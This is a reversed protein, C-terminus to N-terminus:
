GVASAELFLVSGNWRWRILRVSSVADSSWTPQTGIWRISGSSIAWTMSRATINHQTFIINGSSPLSPVTFTVTTDGSGFLMSLSQHEGEDLVVTQTTGTPNNLTEVAQAVLRNVSLVGDSRIRLREIPAGTTTDTAFVLAANAVSAHECISAIWAKVGAGPASGDPSWFEVKGLVQGMEITGDSDYFQLTNNEAGGSNNGQIVLKKTPALVTGIGVNGDQGVVFRVTNVTTGTATTAVAFRTGAAADTFDEVATFVANGCIASFATAGYGTADIRALIDGSLAATPAALTGRAKRFVLQAGATSDSHRLIISAGTFVSYTGSGFEAWKDLVTPTARTYAGIAISRLSGSGSGQFSGLEYSGTAVARIRLGELASASTEFNMLEITQRATANVLKFVNATAADVQPMGLNARATSANALSSLNDTADLLLREVNGSDRYRLTDATRYVAGAAAGTTSTSVMVPGTLTGGALALADTIGYGGLTTPTSTITSWEQNHATPADGVYLVNGDNVAADLQAKTFSGLVAANGTSVVHGTLNANTTVTGANGTVSTQDGSNTGTLGLDTKLTALTQVEPAGTGATKRYFVSATVVDAQMAPTVVGPQITAASTVNSSGNFAPSAWVIHGSMSITRSTTLTAASGSTNQNLTPFDAAVAISPVGTSTTNRLIGTALGSLAVGNIRVVTLAASGTADGTHSANTTVDGVYLFNGDTVAVDFQSKTGTIGVISTQDGTNTNTSTGSFTGNQTSLTGLGSIDINSLTIAGTRGAVSTVPATPYLLQTWSALLTSDDASLVWMTGLDSRNCWDGRDGDLLLMAVQSAVSGLYETIAIAPIQATPITGGVLTAYTGVPQYAAAIQAATSVSLLTRVEAATKRGVVAVAGACVVFTDAAGGILTEIASALNQDSM